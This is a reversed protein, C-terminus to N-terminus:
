KDSKYTYSYGAFNFVGNSEFDIDLYGCVLGSGDKKLEYEYLVGEVIITGDRNLTIAGTYPEQELESESSPTIYAYYNGYNYVRGALYITDTEEEVVEETVEVDKYKEEVKKKTDLMKKNYDDYKAIFNKFDDESSDKEVNYFVLSYDTDFYEKGYKILENDNRAKIDSDFAMSDVIKSLMTYSGYHKSSTLFLYWDTSKSKLSYIYRIRYDHYYKTEYVEDDAVYLIKLAKLDSNDIYQLLMEPTDDNNFDVFSIEYKELDTKNKIMYTLYQNGWKTGVNVKIEKEEEPVEGGLANNGGGNMLLMVGGFIVVFVIIIILTKNVKKKPKEELPSGTGNGDNTTEGTIGTNDTDTQVVSNSSTEDQQVVGSVVPTEVGETIVNNNVANVAETQNVQVQTNDLVVNTEEVPVSNTQNNSEEM